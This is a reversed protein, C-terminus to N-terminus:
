PLRKRITLSGRVDGDEGENRKSSDHNLIGKKPTPRPPIAKAPISAGEVVSGACPKNKVSSFPSLASVRSASDPRKATDSAKTGKM